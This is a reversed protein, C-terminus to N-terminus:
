VGFGEGWFEVGGFGVRERVRLAGVAMRVEKVLGEPGCALVHVGKTPQVELM